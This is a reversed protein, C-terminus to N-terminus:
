CPPPDQDAPQSADPQPPALARVAPQGLAQLLANGRATPRMPHGPSSRHYLMAGIDRELRQFQHILASPHAGIQRAATGIAPYAMAQRFRHLRQWGHLSGEVARRIDPPIDEGLTAIMDPRSHVGKPRSPIGHRRAAAIVTMVSLDLEAAIDSYSRRAYQDRLWQPDIPTPQWANTLPIGHDRARAALHTSPIGTEAEIQHLPKRATLYERNFFERTLLTRARDRWKQWAAPPTSPAWERAPRHVKELALRVHSITTGLQAAATGPPIGGTVVLRNVADLDIDGPDRGPLTIGECCSAPPEWILPESIGLRDLLGSAHDHLAARLPTTLTDTFGLYRSKDQASAFALPCRSDTLDAGTLLEYVYRGADRRRRDGKGPHASARGCAELWQDKSIAEAPILDRRRQYDVPSGHEDLYAALLATATLVSDHGAATLSRLISNIAVSSRNSHPGDGPHIARTIKGPLLLCTAIASRFPVAALGSPPMLRVAWGPWLLQPICRARAALQAPSSRPISAQATGTRYRLRDLSILGPDLARLFRGRAAESLRSWQSPMMATPRPCRPDHGPPMRARIEGIAETDGPRIVPMALVAAIGTLLAGPPPVDRAPQRQALWSQWAPGAQASLATIEGAAAHRLLWGAIVPLDSLARAAEGHGSAASATLASIWQQAGLLARGARQAPVAHLSAECRKGEGAPAPCTGPPNLGAWSLNRRPARGCAPCDDLLVTGHVTCAFSWPLRWSLMWRGGAAALCQPCYRSGDRRVPGLRLYPDLVAKDLRGAPLGAQQEARRLIAPAVALSLRAASPPAKWGFAPVLVSISIGNRRALAELWSDLCEGDLVPARLPLARAAPDGTM